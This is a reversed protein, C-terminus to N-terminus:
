DEYDDGKLWRFNNWPNQKSSEISVTLLEKSKRILDAANKTANTTAAAAAAAAVRAIIAIAHSRLKNILKLKAGRM